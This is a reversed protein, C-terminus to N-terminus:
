LAKCLTHLYHVGNSLVQEEFMFDPSHLPPTDGIGLLFYLGPVEKQYYSFDEATWFTRNMCLVPCKKQIQNWLNENNNMAPYGASVTLQGTCGNPSTRLINHLQRLVCQRHSEKLTRLSGSLVCEGCIVNGATGGTLKGFKLLYPFPFRLSEASRYFAICAALADQGKQHNAIHVSNGLFRVTIGYASSMLVGPRSYLKGKPLGPWLHLGFIACVQYQQLIGAKCLKEAGGDTEEAPQFILLINHSLTSEKQIKRALALLIAMHGDHGCAHMNGPHRSSWSLGTQESIPLADMDARFALAKEKGFDFFVCLSGETPSFVRGGLPILQQKLYFLTKPLKCGLEPVAHLSRYDHIIQM